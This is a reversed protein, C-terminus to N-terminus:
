GVIRGESQALFIDQEIAAKQTETYVGTAVNKYFTRIDQRTYRPKQETPGEMTVPTTVPQVQREVREQQMQPQITSENYQKFINIAKASDLNDAAHNLYDQYSLETMPDITTLWDLFKPDANIEKWNPVVAAIDSYFRDQVAQSSSVELDGVSDKLSANEKTVATLQTKLLNITEAMKEFEEGYEAYVEKNLEDAAASVTERAEQAAEKEETLKRVDASLQRVQDHLRPVEANYKGQLTRFKQEYDVAPLEERVPTPTVVAEPESSNVTTVEEPSGETSEVPTSDGYLQKHLEDAKAGAETAQKNSM